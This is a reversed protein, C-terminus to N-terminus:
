GAQGAQGTWGTRNLKDMKVTRNKRDMEATRNQRGQEPQGKRGIREM